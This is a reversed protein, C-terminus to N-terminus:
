FITEFNGFDDIRSVLFLFINYFNCCVFDIIQKASVVNQGFDDAREFVDLEFNFNAAIAEGDGSWSPTGVDVDFFVDDFLDSAQVAVVIDRWYQWKVSRGLFVFEHGQLRLNAVEETKGACVLKEGVGTHVAIKQLFDTLINM